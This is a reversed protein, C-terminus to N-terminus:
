KFRFEMRERNFVHTTDVMRIKQSQTTMILTETRAGNGFFRVGRLLDGNTVGTAAFIINEGSALEDTTYVRDMDGLNFDKIREEQEKGITVLRGQIEGHLCRMAAATLVGEPAGGIGFVVHVGTGRVAAAIGASLDGDPILKIRAGTERVEQILDKHRERDLIAVVLDKPERELAKAIREINHTPTDTIDIKGAAERGVVIKDMYIDPANLLGDRESIALVAIANDTGHATANTNELPDVAIDVEFVDPGDRWSGLQEGVYLMPAKDREGEGIVVIGKMDLQNLENRMAETACKDAFKRDGQGMTRAASMAAMETVHMLQLGFANEM